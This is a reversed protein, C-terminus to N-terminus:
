SLYSQRECTENQTLLMLGNMDLASWRTRTGSIGAKTLFQVEEFLYVDEGNAPHDRLALNAKIFKMDGIQGEGFYFFTSGDGDWRDEYGHQRGSSGTVLFILNHHAPTMM